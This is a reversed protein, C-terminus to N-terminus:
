EILHWQPLGADDGVPQFTACVPDGIAVDPAGDLRGILRVEPADDLEILLVTYPVPFGPHVQHAVVTHSYVKGTPAVQQWRTEDSACFRCWHMPMHLIRGCNACVCVALEGRGAAAFFGGTDLDGTFPVVPLDSM